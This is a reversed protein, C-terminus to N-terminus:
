IAPQTHKRSPNSMVAVEETATKSSVLEETETAVQVLGSGVCAGLLLAGVVMVFFRTSCRMLLVRGM